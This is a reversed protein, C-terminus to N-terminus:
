ITLTFNTVILIRELHSPGCSINFILYNSSRYVRAAMFRLLKYKVLLTGYINLM